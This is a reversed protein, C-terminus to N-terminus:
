LLQRNNWLHRLWRIDGITSDCVAYRVNPEAFCLETMQCGTRRYKEEWSIGGDISKLIAGNQGCAFVTNADICCINYLDETVGTQLGQWQQAKAMGVLALLILFLVISKINHNNKM